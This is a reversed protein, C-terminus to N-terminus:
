LDTLTEKKLQRVQLATLPIIKGWCDWMATMGVKRALIGTRVSNDPPNEIKKVESKANVVEESNWCHILVKRRLRAKDVPEFSNPNPLIEHLEKGQNVKEHVQELYLETPTKKKNRKQADLEKRQKNAASIGFLKQTQELAMREIKADSIKTEFQTDFTKVPLKKIKAREIRRKEAEIKKKKEQAEEEKALKASKEDSLAIGTKREVTKPKRLQKSYRNFFRVSSTLAPSLSSLFLHSLKFM